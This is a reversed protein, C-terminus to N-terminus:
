YIFLYITNGFLLFGLSDSSFERVKPPLRTYVVSVKRNKLKKKFQLQMWSQVSLCCQGVGGPGDRRM